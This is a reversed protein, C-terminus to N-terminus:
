CYIYNGDMGKWEPDPNICFHRIIRMGAKIKQGDTTYGTLELQYYIDHALHKWNTDPDGEGFTFKLTNGDIIEITWNSVPNHKTLYKTDIFHLDTANECKIVFESEEIFVFVQNRIEPMLQSRYDLKVNSPLTNEIETFSLDYYEEVTPTPTPEDNSCSVMASVAFASMLALLVKKM